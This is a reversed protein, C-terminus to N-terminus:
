PTEGGATEPFAASLEADVREVFQEVREDFAAYARIEIERDVKTDLELIRSGAPSLFFEHISELEGATFYEACIDTLMQQWMEATVTKGLAERIIERVRAREEETLERGLDLKLSDVTSDRGLDAGEDLARDWSGSEMFMAALRGAAAQRNEPTDASQQMGGCAVLLGTLALVAVPCTSKATM